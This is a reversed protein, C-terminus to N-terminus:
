NNLIEHQFTNDHGLAYHVKLKLLLEIVKAKYITLLFHTNSVLATSSLTPSGHTLASQFEVSIIESEKQKSCHLQRYKKLSCIASTDQKQSKVYRWFMETNGIPMSTTFISSKYESHANRIM